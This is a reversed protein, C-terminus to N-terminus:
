KAERNALHNQAAWEEVHELDLVGEKAIVAVTEKPV